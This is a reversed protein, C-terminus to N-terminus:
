RCGSAALWESLPGDSQPTADNPGMHAVHGVETPPNGPKGTSVGIYMNNKSYYRYVYPQSYRTIRDADSASVFNHEVWYFFCRYLHQVGIAGPTTSVYQSTAGASKPTVGVSQATATPTLTTIQNLGIFGNAGDYLYNFTNIFSLTTNLFPATDKALALAYPQIPNNTNGGVTYSFSTIATQDESDPSVKGSFSVNVTTGTVVCTSSASCEAGSPSSGMQVSTGKRPTLFGTTVGTDFLIGGNGTAGNVTITGQMREFDSLIDPSAATFSPAGTNTALGIWTFDQTNTPTLGILAGPQGKTDTTLIYGYSPCTSQNPVSSPCGPQNPASTINLFPNKDPTGNPQNAYIPGFGVGFMMVGTPSSTPTCNRPNPQCTTKSVACVPVTATAVIGATNYLDVLTKYLQGTYIIGSSTLTETCSAVYSPDNVGDPPPTFNDSSAYIGVSGTDM